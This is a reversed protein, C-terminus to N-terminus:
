KKVANAIAGGIGMAIFTQIFAFILAAATISTQLILANILVTIIAVGIAVYILHKWRFAKNVRTGVWVFGIILAITGFFLIAPILANVQGAAGLIFGIVFGVVNVILQLIGIHILVRGFSFVPVPPNVPTVTAGSHYPSYPTYPMNQTQAVTAGSASVSVTKLRADLVKGILGFVGAIIASVAATLIAQTM